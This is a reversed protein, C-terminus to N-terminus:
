YVAKAPNPPGSSARPRPAQRADADVLSFEQSARQYEAGQCVRESREAEDRSIMERDALKRSDNRRAGRM